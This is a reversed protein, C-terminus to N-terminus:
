NGLGAGGGWGFGYGSGSNNNSQDGFITSTRQKGLQAYTRTEANSMAEKLWADMTAVGENDIRDQYIKKAAGLALCEWWERLEPVGDMDPTSTTGMLAQSPQRYATLEITYGKDPVPRMTFQQQYFMISQPINLVVPIYQIQIVAGVPPTQTFTLAAVAGTDYNITGGTCDGILTGNGNDTVNLTTGNAVNVTILINQVRSINPNPFSPQSPTTLFNASSSLTTSARPNNNVSRLIPTSQCTGAYPGAGIAATATTLTQVTQWNFNIGRFGNPTQYLPIPIKECSCPMEVSTWHEYDFPYTDVGRVTNFTYVDKLKLSRFQAPFDYLYFSNIYDIIQSDTLQTDNTTVTLKRIKIIIDGLTAISM